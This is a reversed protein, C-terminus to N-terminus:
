RDAKERPEDEVPMPPTPLLAKWSVLLVEEGGSSKRLVEGGLAAPLTREEEVDELGFLLLLEDFLEGLEVLALVPAEVPGMRRWCCSPRERWFWPTEDWWPCM